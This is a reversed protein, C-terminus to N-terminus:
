PFDENLLRKLETKDKENKRLYVWNTTFM